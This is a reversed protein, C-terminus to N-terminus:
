RELAFLVRESTQQAAQDGALAKQGLLSQEGRCADNTRRM